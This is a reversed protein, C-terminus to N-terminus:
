VDSKLREVWIYHLIYVSISFLFKETKTEVEDNDGSHMTTLFHYKYNNLYNFTKM